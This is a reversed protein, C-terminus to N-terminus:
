EDLSIVEEVFATVNKWPLKLGDRLSELDAEFM